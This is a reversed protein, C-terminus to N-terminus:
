FLYPSYLQCLGNRAIVFTPDTVKEGALVFESSKTLLRM